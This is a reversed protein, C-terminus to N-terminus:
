STTSKPRLGLLLVALCATAAALALGARVGGTSGGAMGWVATALAPGLTFGLSRALQVASGATAMRDPPVATMVLKQVPGGYLGMGLGALGLRWGIDPPSWHDGLPVLLLLGFATIATGAVAVSRPPFRDALRGGLPGALAMALPFALVTLGTVTASVGDEDQLHLAVLYRMVAFGAAICLVAGHAGGAASV